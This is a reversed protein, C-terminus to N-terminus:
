PEGCTEGVSRWVGQLEADAMCSDAGAWPRPMIRWLPIKSRSVASGPVNRQVFFGDFNALLCQTWACSELAGPPELSCDIEREFLTEEYQTGDPSWFTVTTGDISLAGAQQSACEDATAADSCISARCSDKEVPTTTGEDCLSWLYHGVLPSGGCSEVTEGAGDTPANSTALEDEPAVM